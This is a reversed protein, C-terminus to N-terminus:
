VSAQAAAAIDEVYGSASAKIDAEIADVFAQRQMPGANVYNIQDLIEQALKNVGTNRVPIGAFEMSLEPVEGAAAVDMQSELAQLSTPFMNTVLWAAVVNRRLPDPEIYLTTFSYYDALQDTPPTDSITMVGPQKTIPEGILNRIYWEWFNHISAGYREDWVHTPTSMEETVNTPDRQMHGAGSIQREAVELALGRRLGTIQKSQNEILARLVAISKEPNPLDRLGRPSEILIPIVNRPVYGTNSVYAAPDMQFGYQGGVSLDAVPTKGDQNFSVNGLITDTLRSM